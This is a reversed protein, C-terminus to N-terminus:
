IRSRLRVLKALTEQAILTQAHNHGLMVTRISICTRCLEEACDFYGGRLLLKARTELLTAKLLTVEEWVYEDVKKNSKIKLNKKWCFSGNHWDQVQTVFSKELDELLNTSVKLLELSSNCRSFKTFSSLALPIATKKIFQVTEIPKLELLPPESKFGFVVFANAWFHDINLLPQGLKMTAFITAQIAREAEKTRTRAFIRTIPHFQIWLGSQYMVKRALGLRVLLLAYEEETKKWTRAMFSCGYLFSGLHLCETWKQLKNHAVPIHQAATILLNASIPSPSFWAGVLVMRSALCNKKLATKDLISLCFGLMKMLFPKECYASNPMDQLTVEQVLEFLVSPTISLETLLSDVLSMGFTSRGLKEEFKKLCEYEEDPYEKTTRKGRILMMADSLPMTDLYIVDFNMVKSLNTTIIVHTGGTSRPIFDHLDKGEWWENETELYDIIILYPIDRFLERKIRKFAEYEQEEFNRIRGRDKEPDASVDMGLNMSLNLINQRLYRAEGGVWLVRKYRHSYKYAFELALETKGVGPLGSICIVSSTPRNEKGSRSKKYKHRKERDTEKEDSFGECKRGSISLSFLERNGFFADEMKKMEEHRGVFKPNRPFPLEMVLGEKRLDKAAVSQRGLKSRLLGTAKLICSRWDGDKAELKLEHHYKLIGEIAESYEKDDSKDGIRAVVVEMSKSDFFMPILNKKHAFFRVEEMSFPNNLSTTTIVVIGFSVSCIVRDAIEHSQTDAYRARDALFCAIGQLELESKLWKCYRALNTDHGHYGIFVDCSRLKANLASPRALSLRPVQSSFSIRPLINTGTSTNTIPESLNPGVLKLNGDDSFDFDSTELVVPTYSSSPIDESQSYSSVPLSVPLSLDTQLPEQDNPLPNPNLTRPSIYPSQNASVFKSSPPSILCPSNYESSQQTKCDNVMTKISLSHANMSKNMM